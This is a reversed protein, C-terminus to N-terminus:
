RQCPYKRAEFQFTCQSRLHVNIEIMGLNTESEKELMATILRMRAGSAASSLNHRNILKM